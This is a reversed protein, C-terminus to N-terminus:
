AIFTGDEPCSSVPPQLDRLAIDVARTILRPDRAILFRAWRPLSLVWQRM